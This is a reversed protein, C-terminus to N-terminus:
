QAQIGSPKPPTSTTRLSCFGLSLGQWGDEEFAQLQPGDVVLNPRFRAVEAKDQPQPLASPTEGPPAKDAAKGNQSPLRSSLDRLSAASLLLFQGENAFGAHWPRYEPHHSHSSFILNLGPRSPTNPPICGM